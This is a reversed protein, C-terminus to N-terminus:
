ETVRKAEKMSLTIIGSDLGLERYIDQIQQAKKDNSTYTSVKIGTGPIEKSTKNKNEEIVFLRRHKDKLTSEAREKIRLFGQTDHKYAYALADVFIDGFSGVNEKKEQTGIRYWQVKCGNFSKVEGKSLKKEVFNEDFVKSHRVGKGTAHNGPIVSATVSTMSLVNRLREIAEDTICDGM